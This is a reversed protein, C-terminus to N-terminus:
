YPAHGHYGGDFWMDNLFAIVAFGAPHLGAGANKRITLSNEGRLFEQQCATVNKIAQVAAV